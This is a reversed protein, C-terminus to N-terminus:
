NAGHVVTREDTQSEYIERYVPCDALLEEHPGEGVVRGDELVVIKDAHTVTRIRQAVMIITQGSQRRAMAEHITAETQVDVASTADDLLLVDPRAMLVRALALRQKQGGSLNVGRQGVVADYGDPLGRVYDDIQAVRAVERVEDDTAGPRAYRINDRITGSFLVAEQLAVGVIERLEDSALDRVDVGAVKVQGGTVDYFRAVLHVVTSKGSGTAGLIAVTQGPEAVFSANKLVPDRGDGAYSFTVADFEVRGRQESAPAPEAPDVIMPKTELVEVVRKASVEARSVQVMLMSVFMMSMLTQGLYNVFAILQGVQLHGSAVRYGGSWLVAVVGANLATTMLPMTLASLRAALINQDTLRLNAVSFREIEHAARAFAKVVRVGALNEQLVTNLADLRKQAEGFLPYTLKISLVVIGGVVPVLVIYLLSLLPSTTVAMILSGILLLPARVMARLMMLVLNQVQGVDNTLRTILSGSELSDLNGFSFSQLRAFVASRLDTGVAIGARVAIVSCGAGGIMGAVACILMLVGTHLVVHMDRHGIGSDIIRQLLRPQMLDMAVEVIMSLPALLALFWYPKVFSLLKASNPM